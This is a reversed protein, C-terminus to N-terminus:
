ETDESYEDEPERVKRTRGTIAAQPTMMHKEAVQDLKLQSAEEVLKRLEEDGAFIESELKVIQDRLMPLEKALAMKQKNSELLKSSLKISEDLLELAEEAKDGGGLYNIALDLKGEISQVFDERIDRLVQSHYAKLSVWDNFERHSQQRVWYYLANSIPERFIREFNPDWGNLHIIEQALEHYSTSRHIEDDEEPLSYVYTVFKVIDDWTAAPFATEYGEGDEETLAQHWKKTRPMMPRFIPILAKISITIRKEELCKERKVRKM